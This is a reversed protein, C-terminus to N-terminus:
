IRDGPSLRKHEDRAREAKTSAAYRGVMARSRWGATAMLGTESGGAALWQHAYFHRLQHPHMRDLGAETSRRWIM